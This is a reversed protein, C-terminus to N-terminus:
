LMRGDGMIKGKKKMLRAHEARIWQRIADSRSLGWHEAIETLMEAERKTAKVNIRHSRNMAEGNEDETEVVAQGEAVPM